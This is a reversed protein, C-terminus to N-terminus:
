LLPTSLVLKHPKTCCPSCTMVQQSLSRFPAFSLAQFYLLIENKEKIKDIVDWADVMISFTDELQCSFVHSSCENNTLILKKEDFFMEVTNQVNSCKFYTLPM